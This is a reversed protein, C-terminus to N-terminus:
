DDLTLLPTLGLRAAARTTTEPDLQYIGESDREFRTLGPHQIELQQSIRRRRAARESAAAVQDLEHKRALAEAVVQRIFSITFPKPIYRHVEGENIARIAGEMTGAGTILVRVATPRLKRALSVLEYGNLEPMDIDSILMDFSERELMGVAEVPDTTTTVSYVDRFVRTLVKLIEPEDDVALLRYKSM